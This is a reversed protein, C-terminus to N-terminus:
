LGGGWVILMGSKPDLREGEGGGAEVAGDWLGERKERRREEDGDVRWLWEVWVVVVVVDGRRLEPM